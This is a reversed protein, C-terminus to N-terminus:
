AKKSPYLNIKWSQCCVLHCVYIVALRLECLTKTMLTMCLLLIRALKRTLM